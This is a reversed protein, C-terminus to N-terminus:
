RDAVAKRLLPGLETLPVDVLRPVGPAEVLVFRVDKGRRKKDLGLLPLATELDRADITTPLGVARLVSVARERIARPTVGMAEGLCLAAVSGLAVAEGHTWRDFGGASELAHGLTHGFNLVAREGREDPDRSVIAAKTEMARGVLSVMTDPERRLVADAITKAELAEFVDPAGVLATKLLEAIGSRYSRESETALWTVDAHVGVPPHFAGVANKAVGLDVGTKGGVSADVMGLLTTPVAVWSIGRHWTSAAFGTLDTVVGGGVGVALASRDVRADLWGRLVTEVTALTKNAEGAPVVQWTGPRGGSRAPDDAGAGARWRDVPSAAARDLQTVNADTVVNTSTAGARDLQRELADLDRRVTVTYSRAGAAVLRPADTALRTLEELVEDIPRLALDGAPSATAVTTEVQGHTEAYATERDALLRALVSELPEGARRAAEVLPRTERSVDLRECLTRLPARLTAVTGVSLVHLRLSRDLLAGGGLAVVLPRPAGSGPLSPAAPLLSPGPTSTESASGSARLLHELAAREHRRFLAEGGDAFLTPISSGSRQVVLADLDLWDWGLREALRPALFSKGVGMPGWLFIPRPARFSSV